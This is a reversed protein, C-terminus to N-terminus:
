TTKINTNKESLSELKITTKFNNGIICGEHSDSPESYFEVVRFDQMVDGYKISVIDHYELADSAVSNLQLYTTIRLDKTINKYTSVTRKIPNVLLNVYETCVGIDPKGIEIHSANIKPLENMKLISEM